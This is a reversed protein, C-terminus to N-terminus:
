GKQNMLLALEKNKLSVHHKDEEAKKWRHAKSEIVNMGLSCDEIINELISLWLDILENAKDLDIIDPDSILKCELRDNFQYFRFELPYKRLDFCAAEVRNILLDTGELKNSSDRLGFNEFAVEIFSLINNKGYKKIWAEEIFTYPYEMNQYAQEVKANLQDAFENFTGFEFQNSHLSIMNLLHGVTGDFANDFRGNVPSVTYVDKMNLGIRCVLHVIATALAFPTVKLTRQLSLFDSLQSTDLTRSAVIEKGAKSEIFPLATTIPPMGDLIKEWYEKQSDWKGNALNANYNSIYTEFSPKEIIRNNANHSKKIIYNQLLEKFVIELSGGDCILHHVTFIFVTKESHKLLKAKWLPGQDLNFTEKHQKQAYEHINVHSGVAEIKLGDTYPKENKIFGPGNNTEKFVLNLADNSGVMEDFAEKFEMDNIEGHLEFSETLHYVFEPTGNQTAMWIELQGPTPKIEEELTDLDSKITIQLHLFADKVTKIFFEIDSDTHATSIFCNRGEWIYIGQSLLYYYILDLGAQIKFRFLSGMYVITAPINMDNFWNNLTDCMTKNRANLNEILDPSEKLHNIVALGTAMALPHHCFTGAVFTNEVKPFSKDGYSWYGGDITDMYKKNGSVVGIPLGGGIVKGYICIDASVGYYEKAGGNSLRFGTIVEDFLLAVDNKSTLERLEQLFEKPQIEPYRSQIPEVLVAALEQSRAEIIALSKPDDYQLVILDAILNPSIGPAMPLTTEGDESVGLVGDFTGHYSGSFIVVKQKKSVARALRLAVMVAETGSNYFATRENNTFECINKALEGAMPSMPGLAMSKELQNTIANKLFLPNHGFLNVGFGMSMDLYQVGKADYIYAGEAKEAVVQYTMEKIPPRFNAINRNNAFYQRFQQTWEKSFLSSKNHNYILTELVEPNVGKFRATKKKQTSVYPIYKKENKGLAVTVKGNTTITKNETKNAVVRQEEIYQTINTITNLTDYVMALSIEVQFALKIEKQMRMIMLSDVGYDFIDTDVDLKEREIETVASILNTMFSLVDVQEDHEIELNSEKLYSRERLEIDIAGFNITFKNSDFVYNPLTIFNYTGYVKEWNMINGSLFQDLLAKKEPSIDKNELTGKELLLKSELEVLDNVFWAERFKFHTRKSAVTFCLDELNPKTKKIFDIYNSKLKDLGLKSKASLCFLLNAQFHEKKESKENFYEELIIHANTGSFGFSSIGARKIKGTPWEFNKEPIILSNTDYKIKSNLSEFNAQPYITEKQISLTAKILAAIGAANELHGLNSKVSSVYIPAEQTRNQNYFKDIAEIEIPDGLPTGTGHAEVYSISTADINANELAAKFLKQQALGNPATLGNSAGDQNVASGKIVALIKHNDKIADSLKKLIVVGCGEGRGYGDAKADFGKCKGDPSLAQMSELANFSESFLIVNVGGVLATDCKGNRISQVAQDVAVLSSSCATNLTINPGELGYYYSLRGSATSLADGSVFHNKRNDTMDKDSLLGFNDPGVGMYVGTKSGRLEEPLINSNELAHWSTELLIRQQPSMMKAEATSIKFFANDFQEIEDLFFGGKTTIANNKKQDWRNEPMSSWSDSGNKMLEHYEDLSNVGPFRCAMGVIAIDESFTNLKEESIELATHLKKITKIYDQETRM